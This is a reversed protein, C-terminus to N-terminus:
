AKLDNKNKNMIEVVSSNDAFVQWVKVKESVVVAKWAAPIQWHNDPKLDGDPTYTGSGRGLLVVTEGSSFVESIDITYDPFMKYYGIWGQRMKDIGKYIDGGSDIFTHDETMLQCIAEVDHQNIAAVFEKAVDETRMKNREEDHQRVGNYYPGKFACSSLLTYFLLLLIDRRIVIKWQNNTYHATCMTCYKIVGLTFNFVLRLIITIM